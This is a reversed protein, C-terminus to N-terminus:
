RGYSVVIESGDFKTLKNNFTDEKLARILM